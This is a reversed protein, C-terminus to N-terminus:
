RGHNWNAPPQLKIDQIRNEIVPPQYNFHQNLYSNDWDLEPMPAVRIDRFDYTNYISPPTFNFSPQRLSLIDWDYQPVLPQTIVSKDFQIRNHWSKIASLPPTVISDFKVLDGSIIDNYYRIKLPAPMTYGLERIITSVSDPHDFYGMKGAHKVDPFLIYEYDAYPGIELQYSQSREGFYSLWSLKDSWSGIIIPKNVSAKSLNSAKFIGKGQLLRCPMFSGSLRGVNGTSFLFDAKISPDNYKKQLYEFGRTIVENAYSNIIVCFLRGSSRSDKWGKYLQDAVNEVEQQSCPYNGATFGERFEIKGKSLKNMLDVSNPLLSGESWGPKRMSHFPNFDDLFDLGEFISIIAGPKSEYEKILPELDKLRPDSLILSPDDVAKAALTLKAAHQVNPSSDNLSSILKETIEPSDFSGLSMVAKERVVPSQDQLALDLTEQLQPYNDSSNLVSNFRDRICM